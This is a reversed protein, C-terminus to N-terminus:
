KILRFFATGTSNSITVVNQDGVVDPAPGQGWSSISFDARTQLSFGAATAAVPWSVTVTTNSHTIGLRYEPVITIVDSMATGVKLDDITLAGIGGAQRLAISYVTMTAPADVASASSSGESTPNVWLVSEGAAVNYRTVVTYNVNTNLFTPFLGNTTISGSQNAVGLRFQGAPAGQSSAFVRARFNLTGDDKYHMFYDGGSTPPQSFNVVFSAYLITGSAPAFTQGVFERNFDESNTSVILVKGGNVVTQGFTGSHSIWPTSGDAIFTGDSYAFPENILVGLLPHVTVTFTDSATQSGDTVTLTILTVGAQNAAPTISLTRQPGTGEVVINAEPILATNTSAVTVVLSSPTEADSVTFAIGGLSTNTPTRQSPIDSISPAGVTVTFSTSASVGEGDAVTLTITSVGEQGAAPTVAVTRNGGAGITVVINNTPILTPNSSGRSVILSEAATEADSVVFPLLGTSANAAIRQSPIASISPPNNASTVEAFSTGVRLDDVRVVGGGSNQRFGFYLIDTPALTDDALASPDSENIPNVWLTSSGNVVDFRAVVKHVVNTDLDTIFQGNTATTGTTNGISLRFKGAAANTTAIFIRGRHASLVPGTFHAFYSGPVSPLTLVRASFSAYVVTVASTSTVPSSLVAAIDESRSGSVELSSNSALMTGATGTNAAWPSGAAGVIPGNPYTFSDTLLIDARATIAAFFLLLVLTKM